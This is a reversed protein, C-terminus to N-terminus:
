IHIYKHKGPSSSNFHNTFWKNESCNNKEPDGSIETPMDMSLKVDVTKNVTM